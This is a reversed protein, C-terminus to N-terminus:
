QDEGNVHEKLAKHAEIIKLIHKGFKSEAITRPIVIEQPSLM